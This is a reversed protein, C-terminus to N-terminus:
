SPAGSTEITFTATVGEAPAIKKDVGFGVGSYIDSTPGSDTYTIKFNTAVPAAVLDTYAIHSALAPDYWVELKITCPDVYGTPDKTKYAGAQDLTESNYTESKEGSVDISRVQTIATYVSSISQLLATGKSKIKAM